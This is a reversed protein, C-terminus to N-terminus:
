VPPGGLVATGPFPRFVDADRVAAIGGTQPCLEGTGPVATGAHALARGRRLEVWASTCRSTAASTPAWASLDTGLVSTAYTTIEM